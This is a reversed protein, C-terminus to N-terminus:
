KFYSSYNAMIQFIGMLVVTAFLYEVGHLSVLAVM